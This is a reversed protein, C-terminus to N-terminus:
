KLEENYDPNYDMAFSDRVNEIVSEVEIENMEQKKKDAIERLAVMDEDMISFKNLEDDEGRFYHFHKMSYFRELKIDIKDEDNEFKFENKNVEGAISHSKRERLIHL